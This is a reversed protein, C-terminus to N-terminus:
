NSPAPCLRGRDAEFRTSTKYLVNGSAFYLEQGNSDWKGWTMATVANATSLVSRLRGKDDFAHIGGPGAAYVNGCKDTLLPGLRGAWSGNLRTLDAFVSSRSARGSADLSIALLLSQAPDGNAVYLRRTACSYAIAIPRNLEKSVLSLDGAQDLRYIGSFDLGSSKDLVGGPLSEPPDTFYVACGTGFVASNPGNLRRSGFRTALPEAILSGARILSLRRNGGEAVILGGGASPLLGAPGPNAIAATADGYTELRVMRSQKPPVALIDYKWVEDRGINAALLREPAEIWALGATRELSYDLAHTARFFQPGAAQGISKPTHEPRDHWVTAASLLTVLFVGLVAQAWPMKTKNM